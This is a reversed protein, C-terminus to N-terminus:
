HTLDLMEGSLESQFPALIRGGVALRDLDGAAHAALRWVPQGRPRWTIRGRAALRLPESAHLSGAVAFHVEGMQLQAQYFRIDRHRLLASGAIGTGTLRTGNPVILVASGVSAHGIDITLWRPLFQPARGPGSPPRTPRKVEVYASDVRTDPTRITQWLLPRLRVRTYIGRFVLHVREQDIEVLAARAGGAITGSVDEIRVRVDGFRQPLHSVVFRLGSQTFLVSYLAACPLGITILLFLATALLLFRRM